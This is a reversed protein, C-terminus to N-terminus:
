KIRSVKCPLYAHTGIQTTINTIGNGDLYPGTYFAAGSALKSLALSSSSSVDGNVFDPILTFLSLDRKIILNNVIVVSLTLNM